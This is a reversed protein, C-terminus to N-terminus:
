GLVPLPLYALLSSRSSPPVPIPLCSHLAACVKDFLLLSELFKDVSAMMKKAEGWATKVKKLGGKPAMM